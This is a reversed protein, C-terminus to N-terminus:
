EQAAVELQARAQYLLATQFTGLIALLLAPATIAFEVASAGAEPHQGPHRSSPAAAGVQESNLSRM